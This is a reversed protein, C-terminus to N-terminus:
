GPNVVVPNSNSDVVQSGGTIVLFIPTPRIQLTATGIQTEFQLGTTGFGLGEETVILGSM